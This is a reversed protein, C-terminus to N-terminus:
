RKANEIGPEIESSGQLNLLIKSMVLLIFMMSIKMKALKMSLETYINNLILSIINYHLRENVKSASIHKKVIELILESIAKDRSNALIELRKIFDDEKIYLKIERM